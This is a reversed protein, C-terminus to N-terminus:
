IEDCTWGCVPVGVLGHAICAAGYVAEHIRAVPVCEDPVHCWDENGPGYGLAPVGFTVTMVQGATGMGLRPLRWMGDRVECGGASLSQRVRLVAPHYPDTHWAGIRREVLARQHTYLEAPTQRVSVAVAVRSVRSAVLEVREKLGRVATAAPISETLRQAVRILGRSQGSEPEFCPAEVAFEAAARSPDRLHGYVANVADQVEFDDSGHVVIDFQAYGDHGRYLALDTPDGLIALGAELGLSPLTERLLQRVGVSDGLEEAVTAAVVVSGRLPLLCQRLLAGAYVFAALGGKCDSSGLGHLLGHRLLGSHPPTDWAAEDGPPVTDMHANLLVAPMDERGHLVGVVNGFDDTLVRDYELLGMREAVLAAVAGEDLSPSPTRVLEQTFETVEAALAANRQRMLDYM